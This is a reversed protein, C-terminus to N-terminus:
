EHQCEIAVPLSGVRRQAFEVIAFPHIKGFAWGPKSRNEGFQGIAARRLVMPKIRDERNVFAIIDFEQAARMVLPGRLPACTVRDSISKRDTAPARKGMVPDICFEALIAEIRCAWDRGSCPFRGIPARM